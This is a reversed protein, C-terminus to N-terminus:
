NEPNKYDKSHRERESVPELSVKGTRKDLMVKAVIECDSTDIEIPEEDEGAYRVMEEWNMNDDRPRDPDYGHQILFFEFQRNARSVDGM